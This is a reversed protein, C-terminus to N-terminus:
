MEIVVRPGSGFYVTISQRPRWISCNQLQMDELMRKRLPTM